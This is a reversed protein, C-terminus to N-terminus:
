STQQQKRQWIEKIYEQCEETSGTPHGLQWAMVEKLLEGIVRGPKISLVRAVSKGQPTCFQKQKSM